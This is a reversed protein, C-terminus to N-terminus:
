ATKQMNPQKQKQIVAPRVGHIQASVARLMTGKQCKTGDRDAYQRTM